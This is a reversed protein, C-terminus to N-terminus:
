FMKKLLLQDGLGINRLAKKKQFIRGIILMSLHSQVDSNQSTRSPQEYNQYTQRHYSKTFNHISIEVLHMCLKM